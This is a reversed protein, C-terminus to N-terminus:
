RKDGDGMIKNQSSRNKLKIANGKAIDALTFGLEFALQDLFWLCDGVEYFLDEKLAQTMQRDGRMTKSIKGAVEGAEGCLGMACYKIGEDTGRSKYIATESASKRYESFTYENM